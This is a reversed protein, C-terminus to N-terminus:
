LNKVYEYAKFLIEEQSSWNYYETVAKRGNDGMEKCLKPNDMLYKIASAIDNPNHPNVCIGCHYKDIIEKWLVFDTTIMPIGAAMYEFIKNNGLSGLKYGFSPLYDYLAMGITSGQIFSRVKEQKLVGVYEVKKGNNCSKLSNIYRQPGRGAITYVVDLDSLSEVICHHLWNPSIIGAFCITRNWKREDVFESIPPYNTVQYTNPNIVKLKNVISPTVSILADFKKFERKELNSYYKSLPNRLIAPIWKKEAIDLPIDEHSDFIVKKGRKKFKAGMNILEPDHLHYIDADIELAKKYVKNLQLVRFVRNSSLSVGRIKVNDLVADDTNAAIHYVDYRKALSKCEKYFIRTDPFKHVSTVHCVKLRNM